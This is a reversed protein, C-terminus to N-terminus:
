HAGIGLTEAVAHLGDVTYPDCILHREGDCLCRTPPIASGEIAELPAGELLGAARRVIRDAAVGRMGDWVGLFAPGAGRSAAHFSVKAPPCGSVSRFPPLAAGPGRGM